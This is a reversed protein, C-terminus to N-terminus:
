KCRTQPRLEGILGYAEFVPIGDWNSPRQLDFAWAVTAATDTIHIPINLQKPIIGPGFMIWPITMDEADDTGHFSAHGGHDSTIIVLTNKRLDAEDLASILRGLAKDTDHLSDFQETSLWGYQHGTVDPNPFHIFMLDFDEKILEVARMSISEDLGKISEFVDTSSPETVQRLKVKGVLMVTDLDAADALDFIDIGNAFGRDPYYQNWDVHHNSPCIGVLMSAHSPLTLSPYVTQANLTYASTKLLSILNPIPAQFIADPRLGDISIVLVKGPTERSIPTLTNTIVAGGADRRIGVLVPDDSTHWIMAKNAEVMYRELTPTWRKHAVNNAMYDLDYDLEDIWTFVGAMKNRIVIDRVEVDTLILDEKWPGVKLFSGHYSPYRKSLEIAQDESRINSLLRPWQWEPLRSLFWEIVKVQNPVKVDLVVQIDPYEELLELLQPGAITTGVGELKTSLFDEVTHDSFRGELGYREEQRDHACLPIGDASIVIDVEFTRYGERYSEEFAEHNNPSYIDNWKGFGHAILPNWGATPYDWSIHTTEVVVETEANESLQHGDNDPISLSDSDLIVVLITLVIVLAAFLFLVRLLPRNTIM